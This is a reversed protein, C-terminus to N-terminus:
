SPDGCVTSRVCTSASSPHSCCCGRPEYGTCWQQQTTSALRWALECSARLVWALEHLCANMISVACARTMREPHQQLGETSSNERRSAALHQKHDCKIHQHRANCRFSSPPRTHTRNHRGRAAAAKRRMARQAVQPRGPRRGPRFRRGNARCPRRLYGPRTYSCCSRHSREITAILHCIEFIPVTTAVTLPTWDSHLSARSIPLSVRQGTATSGGHLQINGIAHM